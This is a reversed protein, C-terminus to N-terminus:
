AVLLVEAVDHLLHFGFHEFVGRYGKPDSQKKNHKSQELASLNESEIEVM